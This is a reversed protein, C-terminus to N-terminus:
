QIAFLEDLQINERINLMTKEYTLVDNPQKKDTRVGVVNWVGDRIDCEVISGVQHRSTIEGIAVDRKSKPDFVGITGHLDMVVFDVTHTGRPKMKFMDFNRGYVVPDEKPILVVGDTHYVKEADSIKGRAEPAGLESWSKFRLEFPDKPHVKFEKLSRRISCLRSQLNLQSVTVGSVVIADFLIFCTRDFKDVTLEGDFLTGQFLVRPIAQLPVLYASMSRDVIACVKHGYVRAFIMIFRVGDTKEAIVYEKNKLKDFDRREISVPNPGPIRPNKHADLALDRMERILEEHAGGIVRHLQISKGHIELTARATDIKGTHIKMRTYVDGPIYAM